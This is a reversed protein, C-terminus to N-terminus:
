PKRRYMLGHEAFGSFLFIIVLGIPGSSAVFTSFACDKRYWEEAITPYQRQAYALTIGYGLVGCVIWGGAFVIWM